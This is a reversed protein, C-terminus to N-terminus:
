SCGSTTGCNACKYCAGSRVTIAGCTHCPPADAQNLYTSRSGMASLQLTAPPAAVAAQKVPEPRAEEVPTVEAEDGCPATPLFKLSLWRFIYDTISKAIPIAPNGTFGSPEYRTHCFKDALVQMPVGYQLALSVSTAFSDMLGSVVSGEKAMVVFLEGPSGDEYMGVTLYGEHGGISFKHTISQREDPLRRRHAKPEPTVLPAVPEAAVHRTEKPKDQSTNLPQTRKCGDRYVAVAKLGSKWAELYAKEIDEVTSDTPMNVTKSIAGSLFPQAAAMMEIHGMWHISRQGKSPKFACDFVPLHEPKLHPAGEITDHKDLYAIIDQAQTQPYGLKELALPVTQNVIKLMGGGVLKKYKILAIDPEIGTTDCDMMFGITGTPALVTVQSNRYGHETGRALADDWAEKQAQLLEASVGETQLQYAAKRHKRIVGLMPEANNGYSAFAGQKQAIRASTAYAEGCMLSTIAAAYNRGAPSDYPLGTAMLLAGLNAYGLGLPRYDHSNKTIRETPYRSFGVIIEQALLVVSVAHKFAAVDFGGELTRFHMLNLSALNCASDDLFMYESCPNSANIRATGSCTHWANVTTDYQLGPDGCLHAAEAIERFLERAKYTEMVQGDRVARTQWPGDNVVAKMFDDTVRVSNNSNQFYVSGYAEGNFSPDYGAEILAWAKKEENSKCRIFELIDPHEANLIVMKAARRTKGGSKIVGAFADFGRMFSVPGSATGGGALLEKSGRVTSLNTGTGSGYKFLMGETRALGLISEMNDDVSNIFCASCQPHEEVGVNFWVPSNFAAKQRLLLHTLEAHFAERDVASAFYNGETGWRTLTDVVRAVLKRVSTEREPTGPTGRFYKSAVVNTALMSWSKPVEIDKQDFVVKGDEGKISASRYEWALEDAPDVGPTTFFREVTLGTTATAVKGKAKGGRREKGGVVPKGSLEKEM